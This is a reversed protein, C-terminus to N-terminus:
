HDVCAVGVDVETAVLMRPFLTKRRLSELSKIMKSVAKWGLYCLMM